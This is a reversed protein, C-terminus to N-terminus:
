RPWASVFSGSGFEGTKAFNMFIASLNRPLKPTRALASMGRSALAARANPASPMPRQRVSCMNKASSRRGNTCAIIRLSFSFSRRLASAFSRGMCRLSKAPRNSAMSPKGTTM